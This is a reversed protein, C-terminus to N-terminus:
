SKKKVKIEKKNEIKHVGTYLLKYMLFVIYTIGNVNEATLFKQKFFLYYRIIKAEIFIVCYVYQALKVKKKEIILLLYYYISHIIHAQFLM